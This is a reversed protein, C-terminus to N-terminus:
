VNHLAKGIENNVALVGLRGVFSVGWGAVVCRADGVHTQGAGGSGSLLMVWIAVNIGLLLM